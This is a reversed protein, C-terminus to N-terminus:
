PVLELNSTYVSTGATVRIFYSGSALGTADLHVMRKPPLNKQMILRGTADFLKLDANTQLVDGFDLQVMGNSPNPFCRIPFTTLNQNSVTIDVNVVGDVECGIADIVTFKYDVNGTLDNREFDNSGDEWLIIYPPIGGTPTIKAQGDMKGTSPFTQIDLHISDPPPIDLVEFEKQSGAGNTITVTYKGYPLNDIIRTTDGTNWLYQFPKTGSVNLEIRGNEEEPCGDFGSVSISGTTFFITDYSFIVEDSEGQSLNYYSGSPTNELTLAKVIYRYEEGYVPCRDVFRNANILEGLLEMESGGVKQRYVMNGYNGDPSHDWTINVVDEDEEAVVNKPPEIMDMRLSPDGMLGIHVWRAGFGTVYENQNNMTLKACFGIPAGLGMHHFQWNPRGAWANTLTSGSALAARLFNNNSDWDGFYSGFLMTFVSQLSDVVMNNTNSIGGCSTYSGPGCGYSWVYSNNQLTSRYDLRSVSDPGVLPGFNKWGNQGFGEQFSSFNNEVLARKIPKFHANRYAHNKDLYRRLLEVESQPFAPMNAFDVRGVALEVQSPIISPDFKGDSPINDNAARTAVTNNVSFDTWGGGEIDAYYTDASWAGQHDPHGDPNINGSYPVPVHGLIFVTSLDPNDNYVTKIQDKVM